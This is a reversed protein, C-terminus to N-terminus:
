VLCISDGEDSSREAEGTSPSAYKTYSDWLSLDASCAPQLCVNLIREYERMNDINWMKPVLLM